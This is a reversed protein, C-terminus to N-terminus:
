ARVDLRASSTSESRPSPATVTVNRAEAPGSAAQGSWASGRQHGGRSSDGAASSMDQSGYGAAQGNMDIRVEMRQSGGLSSQMEPIHAALAKALESHDLSIQASIADRTASTSISINGFDSSRMGVRMESETATQILRATNIEPVPAPRTIEAAPVSEHAQGTHDSSV